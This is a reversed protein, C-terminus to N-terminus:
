EVRDGTASLCRRRPLSFPAREHAGGARIIHPVGHGCVFGLMRLWVVVYVIGMAPSLFLCVLRVGFLARSSLVCGESMTRM